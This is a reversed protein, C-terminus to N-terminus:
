KYVYVYLADIDRFGKDVDTMKMMKSHSVVCILQYIYIYTYM